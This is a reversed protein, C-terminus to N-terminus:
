RPRPRWPNGTPQTCDSRAAAQRGEAPRGRLDRHPTATDAAPGPRRQRVAGQAPGPRRRLGGPRLHCCSPPCTAAPPHWSGATGRGATRPGAGALPQVHAPPQPGAARPPQRGARQRPLPCVAGTGPRPPGAGDRDNGPDKVAQRGSAVMRCSGFRQRGPRGDAATRGGTRRPCGVGQRPAALACRRGDSRRQRTAADAAIGLRPDLLRTHAGGGRASPNGVATRTRPPALPNGSLPVGALGDVGLCDGVSVM